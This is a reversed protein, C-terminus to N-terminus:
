TVLSYLSWVFLQVTLSYLTNSVAKHGAKCFNRVVLVKICIAPKTLVDDRKTTIAVYM